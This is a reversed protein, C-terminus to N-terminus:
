LTMVKCGDDSTLNECKVTVNHFVSPVVLFFVNKYTLHAICAGPLGQYLSSLKNKYKWFSLFIDALITTNLVSDTIYNQGFDWWAISSYNQITKKNQVMNYFNELYIGFLIKVFNILKKVSPSLPPRTQLSLTM